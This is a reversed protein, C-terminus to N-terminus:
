ELQDTLRRKTSRIMRMFLDNVPAPAQVQRRRQPADDLGEGPSFLLPCACLLDARSPWFMPNKSCCALLTRPRVLLAPSKKLPGELLSTALTKFNRRSPTSLNSMRPDTVGEVMRFGLVSGVPLSLSSPRSSLKDATSHANEFTWYGTQM